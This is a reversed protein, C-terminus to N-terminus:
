RAILEVSDSFDILASLNGVIPKTVQYEITVVTYGSSRKVSIKKDKLDHVASAKLRTRVSEAIRPPEQYALTSDDLMDGLVRKVTFNEIYAPALRVVVLAMAAIFLLLLLGGFVTMGQQRTANNNSPKM